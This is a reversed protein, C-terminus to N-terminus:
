RDILYNLALKYGDLGLGVISGKCFPALLSKRRFEERSYINSLHVEIVPTKIAEICDAISVSSHTYGGANFIIYDYSFGIEQLKNILEGELNSQFYELQISQFEAKLVEFYNDFSIDGYIDTNRKGLLNLNPGNIIIVRM